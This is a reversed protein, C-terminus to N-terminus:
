HLLCKQESCTNIVIHVIQKECTRNTISDMSLNHQDENSERNHAPYNKHNAKSKMDLPLHFTHMIFVQSGKQISDM